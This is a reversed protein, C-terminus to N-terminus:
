DNMTKRSKIWDRQVIIKNLNSQVNIVREGCLSIILFIAFLQIMEWIDGM